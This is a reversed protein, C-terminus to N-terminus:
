AVMRRDVKEVMAVTTDLDERTAPSYGTHPIDARIGAPIGAGSVRSESM